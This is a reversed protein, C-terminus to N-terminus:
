VESDGVDGATASGELLKKLPEWQEIAAEETPPELAAQARTTVGQRKRISLEASISRPRKAPTSLEVKVEEKVEPKEEKKV